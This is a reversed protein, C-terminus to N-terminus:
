SFDVIGGRAKNAHPLQHQTIYTRWAVKTQPSIDSGTWASPTANGLADFGPCAQHLIRNYRIPCEFSFHLPQGPCEPCHPISLGPPLLGLSRGVISASIPRGVFLGGMARGVGPSRSHAALAVSGTAAGGSTTFGASGGTKHYLSSTPNAPTNVLSPGPPASAGHATPTTLMPANTSPNPRFQAQSVLRLKRAPLQPPDTEEIGVIERFFPYFLDFYRRSEEAPPVVRHEDLKQYELWLNNVDLAQQRISPLIEAVVTSRYDYKTKTFLSVLAANGFDAEAMDARADFYGTVYAKLRHLLGTPFGTTTQFGTIAEEWLEKGVRIFNSRNQKTFAPSHYTDGGYHAANALLKGDGEARDPPFTSQNRCLTRFVCRQRSFWSRPEEGTLAM